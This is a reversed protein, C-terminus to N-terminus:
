AETPNGADAQGPNEQAPTERQAGIKLDDQKGGKELHDLMWQPRRGHGSWTQAENAPNRYLARKARRRGKATSPKPSSTARHPKQPILDSLDIGAERAIKEVQRRATDLKASGRKKIEKTVREALIRLEAPSLNKLSHNDAM